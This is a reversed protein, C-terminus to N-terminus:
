DDYDIDISENCFFDNNDDPAHRHHHHVKKILKLLDFHEEIKKKGANIVRKM